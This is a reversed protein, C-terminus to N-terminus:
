AKYNVVIYSLLLMGRKLESPWQCFKLYCVIAFNHLHINYM